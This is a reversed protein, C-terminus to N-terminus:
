EPNKRVLAVSFPHLQATMVGAVVAPDGNIFGLAAEQDKAEFAVILILLLVLYRDMFGPYLIL